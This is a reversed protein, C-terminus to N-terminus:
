QIGAPPFPNTSEKGESRALRALSRALRIEQVVDGIRDVNVSDSARGGGIVLVGRHVLERRNTRSFWKWSAATPFVSSAFNRRWQEADCWKSLDM